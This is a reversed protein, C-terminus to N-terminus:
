NVRAAFGRRGRCRRGVRSRGGAEGLSLTELNGGFEVLDFHALSAGRKIGAWLEGGSEFFRALEAFARDGNRLKTAERTIHVKDGHEHRMAYGKNDGLKSRVGIREHEVRM